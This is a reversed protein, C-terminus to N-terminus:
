SKKIPFDAPKRLLAKITNEAIGFVTPDQDVTVPYRKSATDQRGIHLSHTSGDKVQLTVTAYTLKDPTWEPHTSPSLFEDARLHALQGLLGWVPAPDVIHGNLSWTDSSRALATKFGPGNIQLTMVQDEALNLVARDRWSNLDAEGLEGRILGHALYIAPKDPYRFYVHNFDAAQKGFVGGILVAHNKGYAMIVTASEPNMDFDSARNGQESIVDDLQLDKLANLLTKVKDGDAKFSGAMSLSVDWGGGDRTLTVINTSIQVTMKDAQDIMPVFPASTHISFRGIITAVLILALVGSILLLTKLFKASIM